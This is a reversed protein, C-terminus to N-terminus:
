RHDISRGRLDLWAIVYDTLREPIFNDQQLQAALLIETEAFNSCMCPFQEHFGAINGTDRIPKAFAIRAVRRRYSAVKLGQHVFQDFCSQQLGHVIDLAELSIPACAGSPRHARDEAQDIQVPARGGFVLQVNHPGRQRLVSRIAVADPGTPMDCEPLAQHAESGFITQFPLRYTM